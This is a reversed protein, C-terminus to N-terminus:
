AQPKPPTAPSPTPPHTSPTSGANTSASAATAAPKPKRGFRKGLNDAATELHPGALPGRTGAYIARAVTYADNSIKITTDHVQRYLQELALRIASMGQFLRATNRVDELSHSGPIVGPNQTAVDVAKTLFAHSKDGLKSLAKREAPTLAILFPSLSQRITGIAAMVTDQVNSPLTPTPPGPTVNAPGPNVIPQNTSM